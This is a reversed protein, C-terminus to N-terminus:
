ARPEGFLALARLCADRHERGKAAPVIEDPLHLAWSEGRADLELIWHALQQLRAETGLGSIEAWDLLRDGAAASEFMKTHLEDSRAYAKWDVRRPPDGPHYERLGAFDEADARAPAAGEGTTRQAPLARGHDVPVPYVLGEVRPFVWSWVRFLDLPWTTEIATRPFMLRGRSHTPVAVQTSLAQGSTTSLPAHADFCLRWRDRHGGDLTVPFWATEGAFVSVPAGFRLHLGHLTRYTHIMGTIGIGALLFTAGFALSTEYNAAGLLLALLMLAFLWAFRTPLIYLRRRHLRISPSEPPIRRALWAAVVRQRLRRPWAPMVFHLIRGPLRGRGPERTTM